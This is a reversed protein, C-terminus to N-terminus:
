PAVAEAWFVLTGTYEGSPNNWPVSLKLNLQTTQGEALKPKWGTYAYSYWTGGAGLKLNKQYFEDTDGLLEVTIQECVATGTNKITIPGITKDHGAIIDDFDMEPPTISISVTADVSTAKIPLGGSSSTELDFTTVGDTLTLIIADVFGTFTPAMGISTSVTIYKVYQPRYDIFTPDVSAYYSSWDIPEELIDAWTPAPSFGIPAHNHDFVYTKVLGSDDTAWKNWTDKPAIQYELSYMAELTLKNGYWSSDGGVYEMTYITVYFDPVNGELPKNTAWSISQIDEVKFTGAEIPLYLELKGIDDTYPAKGPNHYNPNPYLEPYVKWSGDGILQKETTAEAGWHDAETTDIVIYQDANVMAVAFASIMFVAILLTAMTKMKLKNM